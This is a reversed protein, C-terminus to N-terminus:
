GGRALRPFEAVCPENGLRDRLADLIMGQAGGVTGLSRQLQDAFSITGRMRHIEWLLAIVDPDDRRRAQIAQLDARSLPSHAPKM